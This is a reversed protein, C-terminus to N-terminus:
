KSFIQQGEYMRYTQKKTSTCDGLRKIKLRDGPQPDVRRMAKKIVVTTCWVSYLREADDRVIAVAQNIGRSDTRVSWRRFEAELTEGKAPQWAIPERDADPDVLLVELLSPTRKKGGRKGTM